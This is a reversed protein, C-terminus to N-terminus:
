PTVVQQRWWGVLGAVTFGFVQVSGHVSWMWPIHLWPLPLWIRVAYLLALVMGAVLSLASAGLWFNRLRAAVLGQAMAVALVMLCFASALLCEVEVPAGWKTLSIGLAVLLVGGSAGVCAVRICRQRLHQAILGAMLPLVLGAFHFHAATLRVIQGDFGFPELAMRDAFLWAGGVPLQMWGLLALRRALTAGPGGFMKLGEYGVCLTKLLWPCALAAALMGPETVVSAALALVSPIQLRAPWKSFETVQMEFHKRFVVRAMPTVISTGFMVLLLPWAPTMPHPQWVMLLGLWLVLGVALNARELRVPSM